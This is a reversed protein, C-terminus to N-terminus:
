AAAKEAEGTGQGAPQKWPLSAEIHTGSGPRTDLRWSGGVAEVGERMTVLGFHDGNASTPEFGCGDDDITLLVRARSTGLTVRVHDAGSHKRINTLAERVVRYIATELEPVLQADGLTCELEFQISQGELVSHACDRLAVEIGRQELIPPRLESMLRRLSVMEGSVAERLRVGLVSAQEHDGRELKAVLLDLQLTVATLHQIPGDHLDAALSMREAEAIEVTRALLRQREENLELLVKHATELENVVLRLERTKEDVLRRARSRGTGLIWVLLGLLVSLALGAALLALAAGRAPLASPAAAGFTTVTWGDQLDIALSQAHSPPIGDTFLVNSSGKRYRLRVATAPVGQLARDLLVRPVVTMGVWGLLASRREAVTAPTTGGRYVPGFVGLTQTTGTDYPAYSLLGSDRASLVQSRVPEAGCLDFGVPYTASPARSIGGVAFCYFPRVGPPVVSRIGRAWAPGTRASDAIFAALQSQDIIRIYGMSLLEPYRQLARVSSAWRVFEANSAGPKAVVFGGASVILDEEHQVALQLTSAVHASSARFDRRSKDADRRALTSGAFWFGLAVLVFVLLAAIGWRGPRDRLFPLRRFSNGTKHLRPGSEPFRPSTMESVPRSMPSAVRFREM